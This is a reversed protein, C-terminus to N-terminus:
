GVVCVKPERGAHQAKFDERWAQLAAWKRPANDHWSHSVFVDVDGLLAPSSLAFLAPDPKNTAMQERTIRELTISRFKKRATKQVVEIDHNGILAAVGAARATATTRSVLCAYLRRRFWPRTILIGVPTAVIADILLLTAIAPQDRVGYRDGLLRGDAALLVFTLPALTFATWACMSGLLRYILDLLARPAIRHVRIHTSWIGYCAMPICTAAWNFSWLAFPYYHWCPFRVVVVGPSSSAIPRSDNSSSVATANSAVASSHNSKLSAVTRLMAKCMGAAGGGEPGTSATDANAVSSHVLAAGIGSFAFGASFCFAWSVNAVMHIRKPETPLTTLLLKIIGIVISSFSVLSLVMAAHDEEHAALVVHIAAATFTPFGFLLQGAGAARLPGKIQSRLTRRAASLKGFRTGIRHLVKDARTSPPLAHLPISATSADATTDAAAAAATTTSCTVVSDPNGKSEGPASASSPTVRASRSTM